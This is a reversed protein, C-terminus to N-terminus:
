LFLEWGFYLRVKEIHCSQCQCPCAYLTELVCSNHFSSNQHMAWCLRSNMNSNLVQSSFFFNLHSRRVGVVPIYGRRGCNLVLGNWEWNPFVLKSFRLFWLVFVNKKDNSGLSFCSRGTSVSLSLVTCAAPPKPTDLFADLCVFLTLALNTWCCRFLKALPLLAVSPRGGQWSGHPWSSMYCMLFTSELACICSQTLTLKLFLLHHSSTPLTCCKLLRGPLRRGLPSTFWFSKM